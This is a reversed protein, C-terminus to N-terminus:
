ILFNGYKKNHIYFFLWIFNHNWFCTDFCDPLSRKCTENAIEITQLVIQTNSVDKGSSKM